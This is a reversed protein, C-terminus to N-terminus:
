KTDMEKGCKKCIRVKEEGAFKFGVRTMKKCKPCIIAIKGFGLPRPIDYIGGKVDGFGKVHKKYLNVGPILAKLEGSLIKEIKGERGKDKGATIKVTDGIKFKM